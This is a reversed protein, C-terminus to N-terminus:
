SPEKDTNPESKLADLGPVEAWSDGREGIGVLVEDEDWGQEPVGDVFFVSNKDPEIFRREAPGTKSKLPDLDNDDPPLETAPTPESLVSPGSFRALTHKWSDRLDAHTMASESRETIFTVTEQDGFEILVAAAMKAFERHAKNLWGRTDLLNRLQQTSDEGSEL